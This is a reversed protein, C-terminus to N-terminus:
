VDVWMVVPLLGIPSKARHVFFIPHIPLLLNCRCAQYNVQFHRFYSKFIFPILTYHTIHFVIHHPQIVSPDGSPIISNTFQNNRFPDIYVCGFQHFLVLIFTPVRDFDIIVIHNNIILIVKDNIITILFIRMTKMRYRRIM